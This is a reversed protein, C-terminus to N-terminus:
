FDQTTRTDNQLSDIHGVMECAYVFHDYLIYANINAEVDMNCVPCGPSACTRAPTVLLLLLVTLQLSRLM